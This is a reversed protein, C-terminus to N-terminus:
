KKELMTEKRKRSKKVKKQKKEVNKKRKVFKWMDM